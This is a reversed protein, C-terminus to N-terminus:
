NGKNLYNYVYATKNVFDKKSDTTNIGIIKLTHRRILDFFRIFYYFYIKKSHEDQSYIYALEHKPIFIRSFIKQLLSNPKTIGVNQSRFFEYDKSSKDYLWVFEIANHVIQKQEKTFNYLNEVENPLKISFINQVIKFMLYVGELCKDDQARQKLINWDIDNRCKELIVYIDLYHRIDNKFIDTYSMHVCLHIILDELDLKEDKYNKWLRNTDVHFKESLYAHLELVFNNKKNFLQALHHHYKFSYDHQTLEKDCYYNLRQVASFAEKAKNKPILIDLDRSYRLAIHPYIGQMLHLGKLVIMPINEKKLEKSIRKLEALLSMNYFTKQKFADELDKLQKENLLYLLNNKKLNYYLYEKIHHRKTLAIIKDLEENSLSKLEDNVNIKYNLMKLLNTKIKNDINDIM